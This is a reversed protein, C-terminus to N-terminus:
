GTAAEGTNREAEAPRGPTRVLECSDDVQFEFGYDFLKSCLLKGDWWQADTGDSSVSVEDGFRHKFSILISIVALDYPRFATKCFDSYLGNEDAKQWAEPKLVRPVAFAEYDCSGNCVRTALKVGAFWEGDTAEQGPEAIGGADASPWPIVIQPNAKHGCDHRGNLSILSPKLIPDGEGDPGAIQVGYETLAAVIIRTDAVFQRFPAAALVRARKWYHTYGM